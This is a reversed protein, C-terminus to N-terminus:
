STARPRVAVRLEVPTPPAAVSTLSFRLCDGDATRPPISVTVHHPMWRSGRGACESCGEQLIEGRGGCAPCTGSLSVSLLADLGRSAQQPTIEIDIPLPCASGDDACFADRVREVLAAVCPFDIAVEDGYSARELIIASGPRPASVARPPDSSPRRPM